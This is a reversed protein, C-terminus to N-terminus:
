KGPKNKPKVSATKATHLLLERKVPEGYIPADGLKDRRLTIDWGRRGPMFESWGTMQMNVPLRVEGKKDALQVLVDEFFHEVVSQASETCEEQLYAQVKPASVADKWNDGKIDALSILNKYFELAGKDGDVMRYQFTYRGVYSYLGPLSDIRVVEAVEMGKCVYAEALRTTIDQDGPRSCGSLLVGLLLIALGTWARGFRAGALGNSQVNM